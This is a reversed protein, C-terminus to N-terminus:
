GFTWLEGVVDIESRKETLEEGDQPDPFMKIRSGVALAPERKVKREIETEFLQLLYSYWWCGYWWFSIIIVYRVIHTIWFTRWQIVLNQLPRQSFKACPLSQRTIIIRILFFNGFLAIWHKHGYLIRSLLYFLIQPHYFFSCGLLFTSRICDSLGNQGEVETRHIMVMLAPHRKLLNYTFPVVM